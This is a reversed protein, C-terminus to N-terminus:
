IAKCLSPTGELDRFSTMRQSSHDEVCRFVYTGMQNTRLVVATDNHYSRPEDHCWAPHMM